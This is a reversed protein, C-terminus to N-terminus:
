TVMRFFQDRGVVSIRVEARPNDPDEYKEQIGRFIQCDDPIGIAAVVCDQLFKVRNDVDVIKYRSKAKREGARGKLAGKNAGRSVYTDEEWREFWGPNELSKFYARLEFQYVTEPDTPIRLTHINDVVIAQVYERFRVAEKTLAKGGNRTRTYLKNVSPPLEFTM